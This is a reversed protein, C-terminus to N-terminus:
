QGFISIDAIINYAHKVEDNLRRIEAILAQVNDYYAKLPQNRNWEEIADLEDDTM